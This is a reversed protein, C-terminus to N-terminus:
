VIESFFVWETVGINTFLVHYTRILLRIDLCKLTLHTFEEEKEGWSSFPIIWGAQQSCGTTYERRWIVGLSQRSFHILIMGPLTSAMVSSLYGYTLSWVQARPRHLNNSYIFSSPVHLSLTPFLQSTFVCLNETCLYSILCFPSFLRSWIHLSLLVKINQMHEHRQIFYMLCNLASGPALLDKIKVLRWGKWSSCNTEYLM